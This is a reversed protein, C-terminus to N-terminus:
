RRYPTERSRWTGRRFSDSNGRLLATPAVGCRRAHPMAVDGGMEQQDIEGLHGYRQEIGHLYMTAKHAREQHLLLYREYVAKQAAATKAADTTDM